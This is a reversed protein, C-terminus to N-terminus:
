NKNLTIKNVFFIKRSRKVENNSVTQSGYAIFFNDYWYSVESFSRRIKDGELNTDIINTSDNIITAGSEADIRKYVIEDLNGFSLDIHDNTNKMSIFRKIDMPKYGPNIEFSNDWILNGNKDFKSIFAHTYFYGDFKSISGGNGTNITIYTPYFAEGLLIYGDNTIKIDHNEINYNLLLEKNNNAANESAREIKRIQRDDMYSTFNKLDIFNYFKIYNLNKNEVEGFFLGQSM